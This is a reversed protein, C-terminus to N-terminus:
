HDVCFKLRHYMNNSLDRAFTVFCMYQYYNQQLVITKCSSSRLTGSKELNPLFNWLCFALKCTM